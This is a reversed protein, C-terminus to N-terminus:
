LGITTYPPQIWGCDPGCCGFGRVGLIYADAFFNPDQNALNAYYTALTGQLLRTCPPNTKHIGHAPGCLQGHLRGRSGRHAILVLGDWWGPLRSTTCPM